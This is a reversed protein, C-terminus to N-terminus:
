PIVIYISNRPNGTEASLPEIPNSGNIYGSANSTSDFISALASTTTSADGGAIYNALQWTEVDSALVYSAREVTGSALPKYFYAGTCGLTWQSGSIAMPVKGGKM